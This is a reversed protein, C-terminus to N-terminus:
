CNSGFREYQSRVVNIVTPAVAADANASKLEPWQLFSIAIANEIESIADKRALISELFGLIDECVQPTGLCLRGLAAMQPHLLNEDDALDESLSGWRSIVDKSFDNEDYSPVVNM